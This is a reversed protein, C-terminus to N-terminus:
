YMAAKIRDTTRCILAHIMAHAPGVSDIDLRRAEAGDARAGDARRAGVRRLDEALEGRRALAPSRTVM